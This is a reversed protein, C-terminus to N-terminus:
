DTNKKTTDSFLSQFRRKGMVVKVIHGLRKFWTPLIEYEHNYYDQLEKAQHGSKLVELHTKYNELETQVLLLQQQLRMKEDNADKLLLALSFIEENTKAFKQQVAMTEEILAPYGAQADQVFYYNGTSLNRGITSAFYTLFRAASTFLVTSGNKIENQEMSHDPELCFQHLEIGHHQAAANLADKTKQVLNKDKGLLSLIRRNFRRYFAPLFLFATIDNLFSQDPLKDVQITLSFPIGANISCYRYYTTLQERASVLLSICGHQQGSTITAKQLANAEATIYFVQELM